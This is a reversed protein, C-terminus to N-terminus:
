PAPLPVGWIWGERRIIPDDVVPLGLLEPLRQQMGIASVAADFADESADTFPRWREPVGVHAARASQRSKVIPPDTMLRPWMEVVLPLGPDDFPWIHFGARQLQALVPMGRLSGTGVAGAGGIQFVPKPVPSGARRETLRQQEVGPPRRRGPRGWFPPRCDRLWGELRDQDGWLEPASTIGEQTLFWECLSFAFDLGVVLDPDDGAMAVLTAAAEARSAGWLRGPAGDVVEALWLHRHEGTIRGSWDVAVV